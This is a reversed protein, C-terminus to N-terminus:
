FPCCDHILPTYRGSKQVWMMPCSSHREVTLSLRALFAAVVALVLSTVPESSRPIALVAIYTRGSRNTLYRRNQARQTGAENRGTGNVSNLLWRIRCLTM